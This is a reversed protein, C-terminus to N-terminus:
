EHRGGAVLKRCRRRDVFGVVLVLGCIGEGSRRVHGVVETGYRRWDARRRVDWGCVGCCGESEVVAEGCGWADAAVGGVALVALARALCGGCGREMVAWGLRVPLGPGLQAALRGV